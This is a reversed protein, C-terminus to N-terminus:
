QSIISMFSQTLKLYVIHHNLVGIYQLIIVVSLNTLVDMVKCLWMKKTTLVNLNTKKAINLYM